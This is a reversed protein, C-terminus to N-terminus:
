SWGNLNYRGEDLSVAYLTRDIMVALDQAVMRGEPVLAMGPLPPYEDSSAGIVKLNTRQAVISIREGETLRIMVEGEPLERVLESFMKAPATTSGPSKIKAPISVMTTVEMDSSGVTLKGESASLLVNMLIPMTTKKDATTQTLSLARNLEQASVMIEM